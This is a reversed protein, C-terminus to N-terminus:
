GHTQRETSAFVARLHDALGQHFLRYRTTADEGASTRLYFAASDHLHDLVDDFTMGSPGILMSAAQVVEAPMGDGRAAAVATLVALIQESAVRDRLDTRLVGPLDTPVASVFADLGDPHEPPPTTGRLHRAFVSAVLFTGFETTAEPARTSILRGAIAASIKARVARQDGQAFAPIDALVNEFYVTLDRRLTGPPVRDLDIVGASASAAGALPRFEEWPRTGVVLRCAPTGDSRRAANMPLILVAQVDMPQQAEDLADIVVVPPRQRRAVVDLLEAVDVLPSAGLQRGISTVIEPLSRHRAHVTVLDNNASPCSAPDNSLRARIQPALGALAPHAACVIAGLLASKGAGPSGTVLKLGGPAATAGDCWAALERLQERRGSFHQGAHAIFHDAGAATDQLYRILQPDPPTAPDALNPEWKPNPVFPFETPQGPDILTATLTQPPGGDRALDDGISQALRAFSVYRHQPATGLGDLASRRLVRTLAATLRGDYADEDRWAAAIVWARVDTSRTRALWEPRAVRGARCLDVLFLTPRGTKQAASVWEAVNTGLGVQGCRPVADLRDPQDPDIEGHSVIHIVRSGHHHALHTGVEGTLSGLEPDLVAQVDYRHLRLAAALEHIREHAFELEHWQHTDAPATEDALPM